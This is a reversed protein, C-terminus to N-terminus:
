GVVGQWWWYGGVVLAVGVLACVFALTVNLWRGEDDEFALMLSVGAASMSVLGIIFMFGYLMGGLWDM